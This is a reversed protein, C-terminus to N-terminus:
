PKVANVYYQPQTGGYPGPVGIQTTALKGPLLGNAAEADIILPIADVVMQNDDHMLIIGGDQVQNEAATAFAAATTPTPTAAAPDATWAVLPMSTPPTAFGLPPAVTALSTLVQKLLATSPDTSRGTGTTTSYDGYPPRFFQPWAGTVAYIELATDEVEYLPCLAPTAASGFGITRFESPSPTVAPTEGALCLLNDYPNTFDTSDGINVHGWTHDGIVFGDNYETSALAQNAQVGGTGDSGCTSGGCLFFTAPVHAPAGNSGPILGPLSPDQLKAIVKPTYVRSPGDDFTLAYYRNTTVSYTYPKSVTGGANDTASVVITHSKGAVDTPLSLSAPSTVAAGDLTATVTCTLGIADTCSAVAPQPTKSWPYSAAIAQGGVTLSVQLSSVPLVKVSQTEQPAPNYSSDGAQNADIVCTGVGTFMVVAGNLLCASSGSDIAFAVPLGSSATAGVTYTGGVIATAPVASTFHITQSAKPLVTIAQTVQPAANYSSNGAQNADIVCPGVGTFTVVTGKLHCATSGPDISFAVPLGSSATAAIAYAGGVSATSPAASTFTITQSQAAPPAPPTPTPEAAPPKPTPPKPVATILFTITPRVKKTGYEALWKGGAIKRSHWYKGNHPLFRSGQKLWSALDNRAEACGIGTVRIGTAKYIGGRATVDKCVLTKPASRTTAASAVGVAAL